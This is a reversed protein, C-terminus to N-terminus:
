NERQFTLLLRILLELGIDHGWSSSPMDEVGLAGSCEDLTGPSFSRGATQSPPFLFM